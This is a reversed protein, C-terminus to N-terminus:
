HRVVAYTASNLLLLLAEKVGKEEEKVLRLSLELPFFHASPETESM